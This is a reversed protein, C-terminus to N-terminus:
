RHFNLREVSLKCKFPSMVRTNRNLAIFFAIPLFCPLDPSKACNRRCDTIQASCEIGSESNSFKLLMLFIFPLGVIKINQTKVSETRMSYSIPGSTPSLECGPGNLLQLRVRLLVQFCGLYCLLGVRICSDLTRIRIYDGLPSLTKNSRFDQIYDQLSLFISILDNSLLYSLILEFFILVGQLYSSRRSPTPFCGEGKAIYLPPCVLELM